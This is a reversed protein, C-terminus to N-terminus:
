VRDSKLLALDTSKDAAAVPALTRKFGEAIQITDCGEVVHYNTVIYGDWSVGFGSGTKVLGETRPSNAANVALAASSWRLFPLFRNQGIPAM